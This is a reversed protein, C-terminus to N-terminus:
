RNEVVPTLMTPRSYSVEILDGPYIASTSSAREMESTGYRMITFVITPAEGDYGASSLSERTASETQGAESIDRGVQLLAETLENQRQVQLQSIESRATAVAARSRSISARLSAKTAELTSARQELEFVRVQQGAIRRARAAEKMVQDQQKDLTDYQRQYAAIEGQGLTIQDSLLEQKLSSEKRRTQLLATEDGILQTIREQPLLNFPKELSIEDKGDREAILRARRVLSAALREVAQMRRERERILELKGRQGSFANKEFGGGAAIAQLITMGPKYPYAGPASVEGILYFPARQAFEISVSMAGGLRNEWAKALETELGRATHNELNVTGILPLSLLPGPQVTYQGTLDDRGYASIKLVDGASFREKLAEANGQLPSTSTLLLVLCCSFLRQFTMGATRTNMRRAM